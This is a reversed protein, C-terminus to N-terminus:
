QPYVADNMPKAGASLGATTTAQVSCFGTLGCVPPRPQPGTKVWTVDNARLVSLTGGVPLLADGTRRVHHTRTAEGGHQREARVGNHGAREIACCGDDTEARRRRAPRSHVQGADRMVRSFNTWAVQVGRQGARAVM